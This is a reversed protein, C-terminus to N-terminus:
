IKRRRNIVKLATNATAEGFNKEYDNLAVMIREVVQCTQMSYECETPQTSGCRRGAWLIQCTECYIELPTDDQSANILQEAKLTITDVGDEDVTLQGHVELWAAEADAQWLRYVFFAGEMASARLIKEMDRSLTDGSLNQIVFSGMDTQLSRHFTFNPVQVLWPVYNAGAIGTDGPSTYAPEGGATLHYYVALGVFSVDIEQDFSGFSSDLFGIGINVGAFVPPSVPLSSGYFEGDWENSAPLTIGGGGTILGFIDAGVGACARPTPGDGSTSAVIVPYIAEIVAGAPLTPLAFGSWQAAWTWNGLPSASTMRIVASSLTARASGNTAGSDSPGAIVSTPLSWAVSQSSTPAIPPDAIAEVEGTIVIPANCPRDSWYYLDGDVTEVDLLNVPAIGTKAGGVAKLAAPYPISM